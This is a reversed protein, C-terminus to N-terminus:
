GEDMKAGCYGCYKPFIHKDTNEWYGGYEIDVSKDCHSCTIFPFVEIWHGCKPETEKEEGIKSENDVFTVDKCNSIDIADMREGEEDYLYLAKHELICQGINTLKHEKDFQKYLITM